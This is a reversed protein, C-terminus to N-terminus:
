RASIQNVVNKRYAVRGGRHIGQKFQSLDYGKDSVAMYAGLEGRKNIFSITKELNPTKIHGVKETLVEALKKNYANIYTKSVKGGKIQDAMERNLTYKRYDAMEKKAKKLAYKYIKDHNKTAWKEDKASLKHYGKMTIMGNEDMYGKRKWSRERRGYHIRGLPTLSGDANQYRRQGWHMGLVGVHQLGYDDEESHKLDKLIEQVNAKDAELSKLLEFRDPELLKDISKNDRQIRSYLANELATDMIIVPQNRLAQKNNYFFTEDLIQIGEAVVKKKGYMEAGYDKLAEEVEDFWDAAAKQKRRNTKTLVSYAEAQKKQWDPVNQDLYENFSKSQMNEYKGVTKYTYMDINVIEANNQKAVERAITSKGSGSIGSVWLINTNPSKGWKDLNYESHPRDLTSADKGSLAGVKAKLSEVTLEKSGNKRRGYRIIGEETYKGDYTQFRRVGKKQGKIGSHEVVSDLIPDDRLAYFEEGTM